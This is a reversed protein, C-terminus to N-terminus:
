PAAPPFTFGARSERSGPPARGRRGTGGRSGRLAARLLSPPEPTPAGAPALPVPLAARGGEALIAAGPERIHWALTLVTVGKVEPHAGAPAMNDQGHLRPTIAPAARGRLPPVPPPPLRPLAYTAPRAASALAGPTGAPTAPGTKGKAGLRVPLAGRAATAAAAAARRAHPVPPASLPFRRGPRSPVLRSGSARGRQGDQPPPAGRM